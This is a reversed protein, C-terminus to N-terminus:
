NGLFGFCADQDDLIMRCRTLAQGHADRTLRVQHHAALCGVEALGQLQDRARLGVQRDDVQRELIAM